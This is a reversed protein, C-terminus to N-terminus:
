EGLIDEFWLTVKGDFSSTPDKTIITKIYDAGNWPVDATVTVSCGTSNCSSALPLVQAGSATKDGCSKVFGIMVSAAAPNTINHYRGHVISGSGIRSAFPNPQCSADYATGSKAATSGTASLDFVIPVLAPFEDKPQVTGDTGLSNLWIGGAVIGTGVAGGFITLGAQTITRALGKQM